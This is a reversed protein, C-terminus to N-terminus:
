NKQEHASILNYVTSKTIDLESAVVKVDSKNELLSKKIIEYKIQDIFCRLGKNKAFYYQKQTLTSEGSLANGQDLQTLTKPLNEKTFIGINSHLLDDVLKKIGRVNIYGNIKDDWPFKKLFDLADEKLVIMRRNESFHKILLPIDSTRHRLAPIKISVQNIRSFFDARFKHQEILKPLDQWTACIVQFESRVPKEGGVPYFEKEEIAKLLKAQVSIPMDAIEDLFITGGNAKLLLGDKDSTAGTFSGKVHGFLQSELLTESLTACNVTIFPADKGKHSFNHVYKAITTKGTGSEGTIVLSRQNLTLFLSKLGNILDQDQTKFEHKIFHEFSFEVNSQRLYNNIAEQINAEPERDKSLFTNCGVQYGREVFNDESHSTMVITYINKESCPKVLDYGAERRELDLDIFAIDFHNNELLKLAEYSTECTQVNGYNQLHRRLTQRSIVDDEVVLFCLKHEDINM